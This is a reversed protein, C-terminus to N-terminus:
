FESNLILKTLEIVCKYLEVILCRMGQGQVGYLGATLM